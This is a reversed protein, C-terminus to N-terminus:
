ASGFPEDETVGVAARQGMFNLRNHSSNHLSHRLKHLSLRQGSRLDADVGM